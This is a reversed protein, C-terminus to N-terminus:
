KKIEKLIEEKLRFGDKTPIIVIRNGRDLVAKIDHEQKDTFLRESIM